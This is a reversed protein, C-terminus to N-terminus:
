CGMQMGTGKGRTFGFQDEELSDEIKREIRRRLIRAAIATLAITV